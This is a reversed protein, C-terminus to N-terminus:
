RRRARRRTHVDHRVFAGTDPDIFGHDDSTCGCTRGKSLVELCGFCFQTRCARCIMKHCESDQTGQNQLNQKTVVSRCKPCQKAGVESMWRRLPAEEDKNRLKALHEECTQGTHFPTASCLLCHEKRCLECRLRPPVGDELVVRNPCDPTPCPRLGDCSSAAAEIGQRHLRDMQDKTLLVKLLAESLGRQCEFCQIASATAGDAIKADATRRICAMCYWGHQCPWVRVADRIEAQETCIQCEVVKSNLDVQRCFNNTGHELDHILVAREFAEAENGGAENLLRRAVHRPEGTAEGLSVSATRKLSRRESASTSATAGSQVNEGVTRSLSEEAAFLENFAVEWQMEKEASKARALMANAPHAEDAVQPFTRLLRSRLMMLNWHHEIDNGTRQPGHSALPAAASRDARRLQRKKGTRLNEQFGENPHTFEARFQCRGRYFYIKEGPRGEFPVGPSFREWAANSNVEWHEDFSTM